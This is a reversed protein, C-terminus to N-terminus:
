KVDASGPKMQLIPNGVRRAGASPEDVDTWDIPTGGDLLGTNCIFDSGPLDFRNPCRAV